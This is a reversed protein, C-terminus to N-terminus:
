RLRRIATRFLQTLAARPCVIGSPFIGTRESDEEEETKESEPRRRNKGMLALIKMSTDDNYVVEGQAGPDILEQYAPRLVPAIKAMIEWQTSAPLPTGLNGQLGQRRYFSPGGQGDYVLVKIATRRRNRFIFLGGSFPDARLQQKGRRALGDIGNRFDVPEVAVLIRMQPTVQLM